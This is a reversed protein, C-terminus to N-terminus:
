RDRLKSDLADHLADGFLSFGFFPSRSRLAQFTAIWPETSAYERPLTLLRGM